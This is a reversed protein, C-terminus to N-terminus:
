VGIEHVPRRALGPRCLGGDLCVSMVCSGEGGGGLGRPRACRDFVLDFDVHTLRGDRERLLINDLHRDGVGLVWGTQPLPDPHTSPPLLPPVARAQDQLPAPTEPGRIRAGDGVGVRM